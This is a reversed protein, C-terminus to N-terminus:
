ATKQDFREKILTIKNEASALQKKIAEALAVGTEFKQLAQDLDIDPQNFWALLNDLEALQTAIPKNKANSM